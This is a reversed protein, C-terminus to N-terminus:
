SAPASIYFLTLPLARTLEHTHAYLNNSFISDHPTLSPVSRPVACECATVYPQRDGVAAFVLFVHPFFLSFLYFSYTRTHTHTHVHTLTLSPSLLFFCLLHVDICSNFPGHDGTERVMNFILNGQVHHGGGFGDNFNIGARPGNYCLNDILSTGCTIAQFYCSTQKGYIGVDHM